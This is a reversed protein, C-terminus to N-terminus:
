LGSYRVWRCNDGMTTEGEDRTEDHRIAEVQCDGSNWRKGEWVPLKQINGVVARLRMDLHNRIWESVNKKKISQYVAALDLIPPHNLPSQVTCEVTTIRRFWRAQSM